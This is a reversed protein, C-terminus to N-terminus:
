RSQGRAATELLSPVHYRSWGLEFGQAIGEPSATVTLIAALAPPSADFGDHSDEALWAGGTTTYTTARLAGDPAGLIHLARNLDYVFVARPHAIIRDPSLARVGLPAPAGSGSWRVVPQGLDQSFLLSIGDDSFTLGGARQTELQATKKGRDVDYVELAARRPSHVAVRHGDPSLAMVSAIESFSRLEGGTAVDWVSTRYSPSYSGDSANVFYLAALRAGDRSFAMRTVSAGAPPGRLLRSWGDAVRTVQILDNAAGAVVRGDASVAHTRYIDKASPPDPLGAVRAVRKAAPVDWLELTGDPRLVSLLASEGAFAADSAAGGISAIVKGERTDNVVLERKPFTDISAAPRVLDAAVLWRGDSSLALPSGTVTPQPVWGEFQGSRTRWLQISGDVSAMAALDGEPSFAIAQHHLTRWTALLAGTKVDRASAGAFQLAGVVISGDVSFTGPGSVCYRAANPDPPGVHSSALEATSCHGNWLETRARSPFDWRVLAGDGHSVVLVRPSEFRLAGVAAGRDEVAQGPLQRSYASRAPELHIPTGAQEAGDAREAFIHVVGDSAGTALIRGDTSFALATPQSPIEIPINNHHSGQGTYVRQVSPTVGTIAHERLVVGALSWLRVRGDTHGLALAAGDPSFALALV